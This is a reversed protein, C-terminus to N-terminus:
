AKRGQSIRSAVIQQMWFTKYGNAPYDYCDTFVKRMFAKFKLAGDNVDAFFVVNGYGCMVEDSGDGDIDYTSFVYGGAGSDINQGEM